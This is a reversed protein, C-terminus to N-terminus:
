SSIFMHTPLPLGRKNAFYALAFISLAALYTHSFEFSGQVSLVDISPSKVKVENKLEKEM